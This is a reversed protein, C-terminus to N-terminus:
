FQIKIEKCHLHFLLQLFALIQFMTHEKLIVFQRFAISIILM